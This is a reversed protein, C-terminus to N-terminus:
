KKSPDDITIELPNTASFMEESQYRGEKDTWSKNVLFGNKIPRVGFSAKEDQKSGPSTSLKIEAGKSEAKKESKSSSKNSSIKM